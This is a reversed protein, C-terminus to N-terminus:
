LGASVQVTHLLVRLVSTRPTLPHSLTKTVCTSTSSLYCCSTRSWISTLHVVPDWPAAPVSFDSTAAPGLLKTVAAAALRSANSASSAPPDHVLQGLSEGTSSLRLTLLRGGATSSPHDRCTVSCRGDQANTVSIFGLSSLTLVISCVTARM